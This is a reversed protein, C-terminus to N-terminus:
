TGQARLQTGQKKVKEGVHNENKIWVYNSEVLEKVMQYETEKPISMLFFKNSESPRMYYIEKGPVVENISAPRLLDIGNTKYIYKGRMGM